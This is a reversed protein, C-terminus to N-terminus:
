FILNNKSNYVIESDDNMNDCCIFSPDHDDFIAGGFVKFNHGSLSAHKSSSSKVHNVDCKRGCLKCIEECGKFMKRFNEKQGRTFDNISINLHVKLKSEELKKIM